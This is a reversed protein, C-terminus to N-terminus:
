IQAASIKERRVGRLLSFKQETYTTLVLKVM